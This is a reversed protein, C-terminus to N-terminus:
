NEDQEGCKLVDAMTRAGLRCEVESLPTSRRCERITNDRMSIAIDELGPLRERSRALETEVHGLEDEFYAGVDDGGQGDRRAVLEARKKELTRIERSVEDAAERVFGAM